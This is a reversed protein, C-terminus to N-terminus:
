ITHHHILSIWQYINSSSLRYQISVFREDVSIAEPKHRRQEPIDQQMYPHITQFIESFETSGIKVLPASLSSLPFLLTDM